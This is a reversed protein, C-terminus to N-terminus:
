HTARYLILSVVYESKIDPLDANEDIGGANLDEEGLQAHYRAQMRAQVLQSPQKEHQPRPTPAVTKKVMQVTSSQPALKVTATSSAATQPKYATSVASKVPNTTTTSM